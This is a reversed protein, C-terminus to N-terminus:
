LGCSASWLFMVVSKSGGWLGENGSGSDYREHCFERCPVEVIGRVLCFRKLAAGREPCIMFLENKMQAHCIEGSRLASLFDM